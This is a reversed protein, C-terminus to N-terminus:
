PPTDTAVATSSDTEPPMPPVLADTDHIKFWGWPRPATFPGEGYREYRWLEGNDFLAVLSSELTQIQIIKKGSM